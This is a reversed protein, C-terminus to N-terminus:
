FPGTRSQLEFNLEISVAHSKQPSCQRSKIVKSDRKNRSLKITGRHRFYTTWDDLDLTSSLTKSTTPLRINKSSITYEQKTYKPITCIQGIYWLKSLLTQSLIIRKGRM